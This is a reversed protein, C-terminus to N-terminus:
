FQRKKALYQNRPPRKRPGAELVPGKLYGGGGVGAGRGGLVRRGKVRNPRSIRGAGARGNALARM